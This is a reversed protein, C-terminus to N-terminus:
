NLHRPVRCKLTAETRGAGRERRHLLPGKGEPLESLVSLSRGVSPAGMPLWAIALKCDGKSDPSASYRLGSVAGTFAMREDDSASIGLM